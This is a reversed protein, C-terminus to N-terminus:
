EGISYRDDVKTPWKEDTSVACSGKDIAQGREEDNVQLTAQTQVKQQEAPTPCNSYDLYPVTAQPAELTKEADAPVASDARALGAIAFLMLGSIAAIRIRANM